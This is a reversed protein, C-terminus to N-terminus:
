SAESCEDKRRKAVERFMEKSVSLNLSKLFNFKKNLSVQKLHDFVQKRIAFTIQKEHESSLDM